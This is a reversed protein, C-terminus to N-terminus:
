APSAREMDPPSVAVRECTRDPREPRSSAMDGPVSETDGPHVVSTALSGPSPRESSAVKGASGRAGGDTERREGLLSRPVKGSDAPPVLSRAPAM